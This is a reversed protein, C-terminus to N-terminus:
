KHEVIYSEIYRIRKRIIYVILDRDDFRKEIDCFISLVSKLYVCSFLHKIGESFNNDKVLSIIFQKFEPCRNNDGPHEYNGLASDSEIVAQDLIISSMFQRRYKNTKFYVDVYKLRKDESYSIEIKKIRIPEGKEVVVFDNSYTSTKVM